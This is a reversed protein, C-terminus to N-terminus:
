TSSKGASLAALKAAMSGAAGTVAGAAASEQVKPTESNMSAEVKATTNLSSKFDASTSSVNADANMARAQQAAMEALLERRAEEKAQLKILEMPSLAETDLEAESEDIFIFPHRSKTRGVERVEEMLEEELEKNDTTFRGNVFNAATGNKAFYRFSPMASKFIKQIAM